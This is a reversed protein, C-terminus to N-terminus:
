WNFTDFTQTCDGAALAWHNLYAAVQDTQWNNNAVRACASRCQEDASAQMLWEETNRAFCLRKDQTLEVSSNIICTCGVDVPQNIPVPETVVGGGPRDGGVIVNREIDIKVCTEPGFRNGENYVCCHDWIVDGARGFWQCYDARGDGNNDGVDGWGSFMNKLNPSSMGYQNPEFGGSTALNCSFRTSRWDDGVLRCFDLGGDGNVDVLGRYGDDRGLDIGVISNYGYEEGWNGDQGMLACSLFVDPWSGVFRCYDVPGDGNVDANWRPFAAYGPDSLLAAANTDLQTEPESQPEESCALTSALPSVLLLAVRARAMAHCNHKM